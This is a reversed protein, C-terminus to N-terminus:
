EVALAVEATIFALLDQNLRQKHTDALGHPGGAAVAIVGSLGQPVDTQGDTNSGWASVTGDERILLRLEGSTPFRDARTIFSTASLRVQPMVRISATAQHGARELTLSNDNLPATPPLRVVVRTDTWSVYEEVPVDGLRVVGDKREEGLDEGELTVLGGRVALAPVTIRPEAPKPKLFECASAVLALAILLLRNLASTSM